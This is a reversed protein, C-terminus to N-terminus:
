RGTAGDRVCRAHFTFRKGGWHAKGDDFDVRWALPLDGKPVSSSWYVFDSANVFVDVIKIDKRTKDVIGLLERKTPLRWDDHGGLVMKRCHEKADDWNMKLSMSVENDQWMKGSVSDLVVEKGEIRVFEAHAMTAMVCLASILLKKM